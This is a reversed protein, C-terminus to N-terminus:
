SLKNLFITYKSATSQWNFLNEARKRASLGMKKRQSSNNILRKLYTTFEKQNKAIYGTKQHKIIEPAAAFYFAISPKNFYAAEAVPLGFFLYRDATVYIDCQSYLKSIRNDSPNIIFKINSSAQNKLYKLYNPKEINGAITLNIKQPLSDLISILSHFNKYPTIRSVSLLNLSRDKKRKATSLHNGGLYITRAAKRKYLNKMKRATYHSIAVINDSLWISIFELMYITLNSITNIYNDLLPIQQNPLKSELYADFQTGMYIKITPIGAIKSSLLSPLFAAVLTFNPAEKKLSRILHRSPLIKSSLINNGKKLIKIQLNKRSIDDILSSDKNQAFGYLIIQNGIKALNKALEIPARSGSHTSVSETLIAIKFKKM